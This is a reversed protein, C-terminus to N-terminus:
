YVSFSFIVEQLFGTALRSRITV